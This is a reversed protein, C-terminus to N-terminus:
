LCSIPHQATWYDFGHNIPQPCDCWAKWKVEIAGGHDMPVTYTGDQNQPLSVAPSGNAPIWMVHVVKYEPCDCEEITPAADVRFKATCDVTDYNPVGAGDMTINANSIWLQGCAPAAFAWAFIGAALLVTLLSRM